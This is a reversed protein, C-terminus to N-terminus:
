AGQAALYHAVRQATAEPNDAGYIYFNNVPAVKEGDQKGKVAALAAQPNANYAKLFQPSYAASPERVVFEGPTLMTPVTDTGQPKWFSSGGGALYDIAGGAARALPQVPGGSAQAALHGATPISGSTVIKVPITWTRSMDALYARLSAAAARAADADLEAKTKVVPPIAYLKDIYAQVAPNLLGQAALQQELAVKSAAFAKTGAETSGTQKAIAEASQQDQQVKAQVAQQNSVAAKTNGDIVLGNQKLSDTLSNTAAASGTQAQAVSLTGGNLLTFANTLLGAADNELQLQRTAAAASDANQKQAAEAALMTPLTMGYRAALATQADMQAKTSIVALGQAKTYDQYAKLEDQIGKKNKEYADSLTQIEDRQKVVADTLAANAGPAAMLEKRLDVLHARAATLKKDLQEQAAAHGVTADTLLKTSIGLQQAATLAKADALAKAAQATVNQGVVGNDQEVAATYNNVADTANNQSTALLGFGAALLSVLGIVWGVPGASAEAALNVAGLSWAVGELIPGVTKWQMFMAIAAAGGAVIPVFAPGLGNALLSVLQAAVTILWMMSAGLPMLAQILDVAAKVISGLMNAVQPLEAIAMQSFKALGGDSTWRQFGVALQEVYAGATLFLPNMVRFASIIGSVLIAATTGLQNSFHGIESNLEPMSASVSAISHDFGSLVGKAATAELQHLYGLMVQLGSSYQNGVATGADMERKIGLIALIGAAGMGAFAGAVGVAYGALPAMLPILAAVAILILGMRSVNLGNAAASANTADANEREAAVKAASAVAAKRAAAAEADQAAASALASEAVRKQAGALAEESAIVRLNAADLKKQAETNALVAAAVQTETRGRKSEVEELRMAAIAARAYATEAASEAVTLRRQAAAVEDVRAAAGSPGGASSNSGGLRSEAARVAEIKALADAVDANVRIDPNPLERAQRDAEALKEKWDSTNLRLYGVISGETTAAGSM